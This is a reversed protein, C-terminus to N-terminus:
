QINKAEKDFILYAYPHLKIEPDEIENWPDVERDRYWPTKIVIARYYLKLDSITIEGL